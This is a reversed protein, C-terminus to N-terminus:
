RSFLQGFIGTEDGDQNGSDWTAVFNGNTLGALAPHLQNTAQPSNLQFARGIPLGAAGYRQGFVDVHTFRQSEWAVVFGGDDLAALSSRLDQIVPVTNARFPDGSAVGRANYRRAFVHSKAPGFRGDEYNWKVVFGGNALGAVGASYVREFKITKNVQFEVGAVGGATYRRGMIWGDFLGDSERRKSESWVVVFGGDRLGAVAPNSHRDAGETNVRFEPGQPVGAANFRRAWVDFMLGWRTHAHWVVVFGGDELAAVTPMQQELELSANVKFERGLPAGSAKFRQGLIDLTTGVRSKWVVV